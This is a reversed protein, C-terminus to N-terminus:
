VDINTLISWFRTHTKVKFLTNNFGKVPEPLILRRYYDWARTWKVRRVHDFFPGGSVESLSRNYRHCPESIEAIGLLSDWGNLIMVLDYIKMENCFTDFQEVWVPRRSRLSRKVSDSVENWDNRVDNTLDLGILENQKAYNWLREREKERGAGYALHMIYFYDKGKSLLISGFKM